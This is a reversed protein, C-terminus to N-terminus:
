RWCRCACRPKALVRYDISLIVAMGVFGVGIGMLQSYVESLSSGSDQANYFSAAYLVLIGSALLLLFAATLGKDM